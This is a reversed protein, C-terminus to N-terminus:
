KDLLKPALRAGLREFVLEGDTAPGSALGEDWLRRFEDVARARERRHHKWDRLAERMVESASAYEGCAIAERVMEAMEQTIAVSIKEVRSVKRDGTKGFTPLKRVPTWQAETRIKRGRAAGQRM